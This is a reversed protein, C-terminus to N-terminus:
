EEVGASPGSWLPAGEGGSGAEPRRYPRVVRLAARAWWRWCRRREGGDQVPRPSFPPLPSAFPRVAGNGPPHLRGGRGERARPSERAARAARQGQPPRQAPGPTTLLTQSDRYTGPYRKTHRARQCGGERRDTGHTYAWLAGQASPEPPAPRVSPLPLFAAQTQGRDGSSM